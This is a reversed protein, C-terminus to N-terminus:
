FWKQQESFINTKEMVTFCLLFCLRLRLDRAPPCSPTPRRAVSTGPGDSPLRARWARRPLQSAEFDVTLQQYSHQQMKYKERGIENLVRDVAYMRRTGQISWFPKNTIGLKSRSKRHGQTRSQEKDTATKGRGTEGWM